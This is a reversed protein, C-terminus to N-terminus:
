QNGKSVFQDPRVALRNNFEWVCQSRPNRQHLSDFSEDTQCQRQAAQRKGITRHRLAVPTITAPMPM